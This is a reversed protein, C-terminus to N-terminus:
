WLDISCFGGGNVGFSSMEGPVHPSPTGCTVVQGWIAGERGRVPRRAEQSSTNDSLCKLRAFFLFSLTGIELEQILVFTLLIGLPSHMKRDSLVERQVPCCWVWLLAHRCVTVRPGFGARAEKHLYLKVPVCGPRHMSVSNMAVNRCCRLLQLLSKQGQLGLYQCDAGKCFSSEFRQGEADLIM